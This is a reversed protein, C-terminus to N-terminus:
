SRCKKEIHERRADDEFDGDAYELGFTNDGNISCVTAPYWHGKGAFRARVKDGKCITDSRGESLDNQLVHKKKVAVINEIKADDEWDGDAYELVYSGDPNAASVKAPYWHGKGAFNARVKAGVCLISSKQEKERASSLPVAFSSDHDRVNALSDDDISTFSGMRDATLSPKYRPNHRFLYQGLWEIANIDGNKGVAQLLKPLAMFLVPLLNDAIYQRKEKDMKSESLSKLLLRFSETEFSRLNHSEMKM